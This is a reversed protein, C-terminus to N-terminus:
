PIHYDMFRSRLQQNRQSLNKVNGNVKDLLIHKATYIRKEFYFSHCIGM